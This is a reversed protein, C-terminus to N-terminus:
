DVFVRRSPDIRTEFTVPKRTRDVVLQASIRFRLQQNWSEGPAYEVYVARLRPEYTELTYRLASIVQEAIEAPALTSDVLDPLGYLPATPASGQRTRCMRQLHELVDARLETDSIRGPRDDPRRVRALLTRSM